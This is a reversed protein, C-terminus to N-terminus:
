RQSAGTDYHTLFTSARSMRWVAIIFQRYYLLSATKDKTVAKPPVGSPYERRTVRADVLATTAVSSM